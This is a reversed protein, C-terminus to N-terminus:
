RLARRPRGQSKKQVLRGAEIAKHLASKMVGIAESIEPVSEGTDLRRQAEVLVVPTLKSGSRKAGQVFFGAAGRERLTKCARKLTTLSVGFARVVQMQTATGNAILQSTYLRFSALDREGHTFVPLHGNFYYVTGDRCEFALEPTVSTTGHPFVPM